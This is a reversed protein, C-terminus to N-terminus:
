VSLPTSNILIKTKAFEVIAIFFCYSPCLPCFCTDQLLMHKDTVKENRVQLSMDPVQVDDCSWRGFLKIEPLEATPPLNAALNEDQYETEVVEMSDQLCAVM